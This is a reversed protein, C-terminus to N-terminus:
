SGLEKKAEARARNLDQMEENTGGKDPHASSARAKFREEIVEICVPAGEPFGLVKRWSRYGAPPPLAKFGQFTARVLHLTGHRMEVRRAELVHHIAQLNGEVTSYRDVAICRQDGDWTFWAAVGPDAPRTSGLTVNSSLIISDLARGSDVGFRRLSDEVNKLAGALTTQFKGKEREAIRPVGFPWTLPYASVPESM